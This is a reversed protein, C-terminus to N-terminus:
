APCCNSRSFVCLRLRVKLIDEEATLHANKRFMAKAKRKFDDLGGPYERGIIITRKWLDRVKPHMKKVTDDHEGGGGSGGRTGGEGDRVDSFDGARSVSSSSCIFRVRAGGLAPVLRAFIAM